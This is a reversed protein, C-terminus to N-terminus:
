HKAMSRSVGHAKAILTHTLSWVATLTGICGPAVPSSCLRCCCAACLSVCSEHEEVATNGNM